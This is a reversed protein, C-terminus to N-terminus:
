MLRSMPVPLKLVSALQHVTRLQPTFDDVTEIEVLEELDVDAQEALREVSLGQQRRAYEILRGFVPQM